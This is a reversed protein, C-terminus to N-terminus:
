PPRRQTSVDDVFSSYSDRKVPKLFRSGNGRWDWGEQMHRVEARGSRLEPVNM